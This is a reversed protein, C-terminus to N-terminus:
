ATTSLTGTHIAHYQGTRRPHARPVGPRSRLVAGCPYSTPPAPRNPNHRLVATRTISPGRPRPTRGAHTPAGQPNAKPHPYAHCQRRVVARVRGGRRPPPDRDRTHDHRTKHRRVRDPTRTRRQSRIPVSSDEPLRVIVPSASQRPIVRRTWRSATGPATSDPDLVPRFSAAAGTPPSRASAPRESHLVAPRSRLLAVHASPAPGASTPMRASGTSSATSPVARATARPPPRRHLAQRAAAQCDRSSGSDRHVHRPAGKDPFM